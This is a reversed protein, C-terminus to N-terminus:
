PRAEWEDLQDLMAQLQQRLEGSSAIGHVNFRYHGERGSAAHGTIVVDFGDEEDELAITDVRAAM